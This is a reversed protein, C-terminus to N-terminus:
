SLVELAKMVFIKRKAGIYQIAAVQKETPFMKMFESMNAIRAVWGENHVWELAVRSIATLINATTRQPAGLALLRAETFFEMVPMKRLEELSSSNEIVVTSVREIRPSSFVIREGAGLINNEIAWGELMSQIELAKEHLKQERM